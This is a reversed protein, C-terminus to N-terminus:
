SEEPFELKVNHFSSFKYADVKAGQTFAMLALAILITYLFALSIGLSDRCKGRTDNKKDLRLRKDFFIYM